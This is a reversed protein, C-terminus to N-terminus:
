PLLPLAAAAALLLGPLLARLYDAHSPGGLRRTLWQAAAAAAVSRAAAALAIGVLGHRLGVALFLPFLLLNAVSWLLRLRTKGLALWFLGPHSNLGAAAAAACLARLAPVAEGWREPYLARLLAPALAYLLAASPLLLLANGRTLRLYARNREEAPAGALLPLAVQEAVPAARQALFMSHQWAFTYLGLAHAGFSRGVLFRDTQGFIADVVRTGVVRLGDPLSPAAGRVPPPALLLLLATGFAGAALDGLVLARAGFGARALLVRAVGAAAAVAVEALFLPRFALARALRARLVSSAGAFPLVASGTRLLAEFGEPARLLSRLPGALAAAALFLLSGALLALRMAARDDCDPQRVRVVGMGADAGAMLAAVGVTVLAAAGFEAGGLFRAVLLLTAFQLIQSLAGYAAGRLM